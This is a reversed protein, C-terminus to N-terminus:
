GSPNNEVIGANLYRVGANEAALADAHCDPLNFRM